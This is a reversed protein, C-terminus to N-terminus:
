EMSFKEKSTGKVYHYEPKRSVVEEKIRLKWPNIEKMPINDM